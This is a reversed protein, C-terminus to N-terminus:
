NKRGRFAKQQKERRIEELEELIEEIEEAEQVAEEIRGEQIAQKIGEEDLNELVPNTALEYEYESQLEEETMKRRLNSKKVVNKSVPTGVQKNPVQKRINKGQQKEDKSQNIILNAYPDVHDPNDINANSDSGTKIINKKNSKSNSFSITLFIRHLIIGFIFLAFIIFIIFYKKSNSTQSKSSSKAPPSAKINIPSFTPLDDTKKHDIREKIFSGSKLPRILSSSRQM